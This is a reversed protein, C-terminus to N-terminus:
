RRRVQAWFYINRLGLFVAAGVLGCAVGGVVVDSLWHAGAVLRPLCFLPAVLMFRLSTKRDLLFYFLVCIYVLVSAHDGPFSDHSGTKVDPVWPLVHKINVFPTLTHGPSDRKHSIYDAVFDQWVLIFLLIAAFQLVPIKWQSVPVGRLLTAYCGLILLGPIADFWRSSAFVWSYQWYQNLALSGNLTFFVSQDVLNWVQRIPTVFQWSAYVLVGAIALGLLVRWSPCANDMASEREAAM